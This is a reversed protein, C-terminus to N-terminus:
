LHPELRNFVHSEIHEHFSRLTPVVERNAVEIGEGFSVQIRHSMEANIQTGAGVELVPKGGEGPQLRPTHTAMRSIYGAKIGLRDIGYGVVVLPIERHKDRNASKNLLWLLDQNVPSRAPDPCVACVERQAEASMLRIQSGGVAAARDAVPFSIDKEQSATMGPTNAKSLSFALNDLSNRLCQLADGIMLSTEEPLPKLQEAMLRFGGAGDPEQYVRYGDDNKWAALLEDIADIHCKAWAWKRRHSFSNIRRQREDQLSQKRAHQARLERARQRARRAQRESM